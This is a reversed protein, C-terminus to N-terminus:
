HRKTSKFEMIEKKGPELVKNAKKKQEHHRWTAEMGKTQCSGKSM